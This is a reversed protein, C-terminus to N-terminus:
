VKKIRACSQSENTSSRQTVCFAPMANLAKLLNWYNVNITENFFGSQLPSSRLVLSYLLWHNLIRQAILTVLVKGEEEKKRKWRRSVNKRIEWKVADVAAAEKWQCLLRSVFFFKRKNKIERISRMHYPQQQQKNSQLVAIRDIWHYM